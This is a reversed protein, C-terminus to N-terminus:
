KSRAGVDLERQIHDLPPESLREVFPDPAARKLADLGQDRGDVFINVIM